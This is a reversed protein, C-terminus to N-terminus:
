KKRFLSWHYKLISINLFCVSLFITQNCCFQLVYHSCLQLLWLLCKEMDLNLITDELQNGTQLYCSFVLFVGLTYKCIWSWQSTTSKPLFLWLNSNLNTQANKLSPPTPAPLSLALFYHSLFFFFLSHSFFLTLAKTNKGSDTNKSSCAGPQHLKWVKPRQFM